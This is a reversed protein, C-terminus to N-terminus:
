SGTEEDTQAIPDFDCEECKLHFREAGNTQKASEDAFAVLEPNTMAHLKLGSLDYGTSKGTM